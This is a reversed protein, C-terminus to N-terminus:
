TSPVILSILILLSYFHIGKLPHCCGPCVGVMFNASHWDWFPQPVLNTDFDSLQRGTYTTRPPKFISDLCRSINSHGMAYDRPAETRLIEEAEQRSAAAFADAFVSDRSRKKQQLDWSGIEYFDDDKIVYSRVNVADRAAQYNGHFGNLDLSNPNRTDYKKTLVIFAHLHPSGDEHLESSVVIYSPDFPGLIDKLLNAADAKDLDCQPYTLFLKKSQLRFGPM